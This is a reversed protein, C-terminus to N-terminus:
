HSSSMLDWQAEDFDELSQKQQKARSHRARVIAKCTDIVYWLPQELMPAIDVDWLHHRGVFHAWQPKKGVRLVANIYLLPHVREDAIDMEEIDSTPLEARLRAAYKELDRGRIAIRVPVLSRLTGNIPRVGNISKLGKELIRRRGGSRAANNKRSCSPGAGEQPVATPDDLM